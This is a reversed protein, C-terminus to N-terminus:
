QRKDKRTLQIKDPLWLAPIDIHSIITLCYDDVVFGIVQDWTTCNGTPDTKQLHRLRLETLTLVEEDTLQALRERWVTAAEIGHILEIHIPSICRDARQLGASGFEDICITPPQHAAEPLLSATLAAAALLAIALRKVNIPRRSRSPV